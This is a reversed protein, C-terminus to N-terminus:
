QYMGVPQAQSSEDDAQQMRQALKERADAIKDAQEVLQETDVRYYWSDFGVFATGV